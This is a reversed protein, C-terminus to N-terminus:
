KNRNWIGLLNIISLYLIFCKEITIQTHTHTKIGTNREYLFWDIREWSTTKWREVTQVLFFKKDGVMTAGKTFLQRIEWNWSFTVLKLKWALACQTFLTWIRLKKRTWIKGCESQIRLNVSYIETNLDFAPFYPGSFVGYKSVKWATASFESFESILTLGSWERTLYVDIFIIKLDNQFVM